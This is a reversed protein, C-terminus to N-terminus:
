PHTSIRSSSRDLLRRWAGFAILALGAVAAYHAPEPVPTGAAYEVGFTYYGGLSGNIHVDLNGSIVVSQAPPFHFTDGIAIFDHAGGSGSYPFYINLNWEAGPSPLSSAVAGVTYDLTYYGGSYVTTYFMDEISIGFGTLAYGPDATMVISFDNVVGPTSAGFPVYATPGNWQQITGSIVSGPVFALSVPDHPAHFSFSQAALPLTSAFLCAAGGLVAFTSFAPKRHPSTPRM